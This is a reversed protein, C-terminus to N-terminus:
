SLVLRGPAGLHPARGSLGAGARSCDGAEMMPLDGRERRSLVNRFKQMGRDPPWAARDM